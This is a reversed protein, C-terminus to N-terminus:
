PVRVACKLVRCVMSWTLVTLDRLGIETYRPLICDEVRSRVLTVRIKKYPQTDAIYRWEVVTHTSQSRILVMQM